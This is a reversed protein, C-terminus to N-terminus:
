FRSEFGDAALFHFPETGFNARIAADTELLHVVHFEPRHNWTSFSMSGGLWQGNKSFHVLGNDLDLAVGLIDGEGYPEFADSVLGNCSLKGNSAYGCAGLPDSSPDGDISMADTAFGTVQERGPARLVEIEWYWKGSQHGLDSRVGRANATDRMEASLQDLSLHVGFGIQQLSWVAPDNKTVNRDEQILFSRASRCGHFSSLSLAALAEARELMAYTNCDATPPYETCAPVDTRGSHDLLIANPPLEVTSREPGILIVRRVSARDEAIVRWKAAHKSSLAIVQPGRARAVVTITATPDAPEDVGLVHFAPMSARKENLESLDSERCDASVLWRSSEEAPADAPIRGIVESDCAYLTVCAILVRAKM